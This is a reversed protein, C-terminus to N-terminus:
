LVVFPRICGWYGSNMGLLLRRSLQTRELSKAERLNVKNTKM